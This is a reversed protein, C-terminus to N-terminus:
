WSCRHGCPLARLIDGPAYDDCCISCSASSSNAGSQLVPPTLRCRTANMFRALWDSGSSGILDLVVRSQM